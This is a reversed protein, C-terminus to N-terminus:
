AACVGGRVNSLHAASWLQLAVVHWLGVSHDAKGSLHEDFYSRLGTRSFVGAPFPDRHILLDEVLPRLPGRLWEALPVDFGRKRGSPSVGPALERLIRRLVPKNPTTGLHEKPDLQFAARVVGPALMPVRVELGFNMSARDVKALMMELHPGLETARLTQAVSRLSLAPPDAYRSSFERPVAELNPAIRRLNSALFPTHAALHWDGLSKFRIGAPASGIGFASAARIAYRLPRPFRFLSAAGIMKSFRPYGWFLEDAGDGSLAVKVHRSAARSLLLTPLSSPDAFPESYVQAATSLIDLCRSEDFVFVHHELDLIRAYQRADESEDYADDAFAITFAPLRKGAEQRAMGAVLPSDVGGSLFVGLPVDSVLQARVAKRLEQAVCSVAPEGQLQESAIPPEFHRGRVVTADSKVLVYEGPPVQHTGELIGYPSPVHGLRLYLGLVDLRFASGSVWPHRILQNFQSGFLIRDRGHFYYLPKVGFVDRALLLTRTQVSYWGLAFIGAFKSLAHKGWQILANLVVESDSTSRFAYGISRLEDRLERFNYVEGNFVLIHRGCASVFPQHGAASCDIISLRRFGLAVSKHDTWVGEDDPGRAKMLDSMDRLDGLFSPPLGDIPAFM